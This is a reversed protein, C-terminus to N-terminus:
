HATSTWGSVPLSFPILLSGVSKRVQRAHCRLTGAIFKLVNQSIMKLMKFRKNLFLWVISMIGYKFRLAHVVLKTVRKDSSLSSRPDSRLNSSNQLLGMLTSFPCIRFVHLLLMIVLTSDMIHYMCGLFLRILWSGTVLGAFLILHLLFLATLHRIFLSSPLCDTSLQKCHKLSLDWFVGLTSAEFKDM